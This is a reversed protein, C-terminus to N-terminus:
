RDVEGMVIDLSALITVLDAIYHGKAIENIAQLHAFSPARIRCREPKNGGNSKLYIGCEGKPAETASYIEGAPVMYGQTYLKFHNIMAEMSSHLLEKPPPAIRKDSTIVRGKPMKALAQKIISLSQKIEEVRVLYRDYCDGKTGIPLSFDLQSYIEYPNRKRLDWAVGSARLMPGSFGWALASEKSVVGIGSLRQIWIRNYTLLSLTDNFVLAFNQIFKEIDSLLEDDVDAAVGGPRIYNAHLRAGCVRESFEMIKEREEFLWLMPTTAGVDLAQTTINLIHNAIRTLELFLVRIFQAREPVECGLLKEVALALAHEQSMPSVYDIRDLFPPAQLYTKHELLKETSRHLYGIYPEVKHVVEGDLHLVLRLVGHAAPHQPGFNIVTLHQLYEEACTQEISGNCLKAGLEFDEGLKMCVKANHAEYAERMQEQGSALKASPAINM